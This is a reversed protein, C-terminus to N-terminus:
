ISKIKSKNVFLFPEIKGPTIKSISWDPIYNPDFVWCRSSKTVKGNSKVHAADFYILYDGLSDISDQAVCDGSITIQEPIFVAGSFYINRGTTNVVHVSSEVLYIEKKAISCYISKLTQNKVLFAIGDKKYLVTQAHCYSSFLLTVAIILTKM